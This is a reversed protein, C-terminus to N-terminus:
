QQQGKVPPALRSIDFEEGEAPLKGKKGKGQQFCSMALPVVVGTASIITWLGYSMCESLRLGIFHPLALTAVLM